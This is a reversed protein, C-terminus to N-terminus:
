LKTTVAINARYKVNLNPQRSYKTNRPYNSIERITYLQLNIRLLISKRHNTNCPKCRRIHTHQAIAICSTNQITSKNFVTLCTHIDM